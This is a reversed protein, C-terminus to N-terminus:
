PAKLQLIAGPRPSHLSYCQKHSTANNRDGSLSSPSRMLSETTIGTYLSRAVSPSTISFTIATGISISNSQTSSPDLSPERSISASNAPRYGWIRTNKCSRLM